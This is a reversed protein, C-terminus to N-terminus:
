VVVKSEFEINGITICNLMHMKKNELAFVFIKRLSFM